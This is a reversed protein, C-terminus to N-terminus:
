QRSLQDFLNQWINAGGVDAFLATHTGFNTSQEAFIKSQEVLKDVKKYANSPQGGMCSSDYIGEATARLSRGGMMASFINEGGYKEQADSKEFAYKLEGKAAVLFKNWDWNSPIVGHQVALKCFKLFDAILELTSAQAYLGHYNGAHAYDDDARMRYCDVLWGYRENQSLGNAWNSNKLFSDDQTFKPQESPKKCEKKHTQWHAKQHEGGCYFVSQCGACRKNSAAGCVACAGKM